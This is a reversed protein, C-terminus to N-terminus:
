QRGEGAFSKSAIDIVVSKIATSRWCINLQVGRPEKGRKTWNISLITNTYSVRLLLIFVIEQTHSLWAIIIM